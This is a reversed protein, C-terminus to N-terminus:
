KAKKLQEIKELNSKSNKLTSSDNAATALKIAKLFQQEALKLNGKKLFAEGYSDFANASQPYTLTNYKLTLLALAVNDPNSLQQYAITNIMPENLGSNKLADFVVAEAKPEKRQKLYAAAEAMKAELAAMRAEREQQQKQKNAEQVVQSIANIVLEPEERHINHGSRSTIIHAGSTFQSFLENHLNRWVEVGKPEHLFLEPNVRKQVSTLVVAPVQPLKGFDPLEAKEFIANIAENEQKFKAPVFSNQLEMDKVAKTYDAKKLEQMMKEHAPDVFVLGKVKDPHKSAYARIIFAGYSHGVLIFPAKLTAMEILTELDQVAQELTHTNPNPESNGTGARSYLMVQNTQMVESAVNGWVTYPTGFGSEFIVTYEGTGAQIMELSHNGVNVLQTQQAQALALNGLFFLLLLTRKIMM